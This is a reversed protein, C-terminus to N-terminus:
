TCDLRLVATQRPQLSISQTGAALPWNQGNVDCNNASTVRIGLDRCLRHVPALSERLEGTDLLPTINAFMATVEILGDRELTRFRERDRSAARELWRELVHTNEVTWRFASDVDRSERCRDCVEMAQTIFREHLELVIPQDHTFGVDTHSHHIFYITEVATRVDGVSSEAARGHDAISGLGGIAAAAVSGKLFDRRNPSM